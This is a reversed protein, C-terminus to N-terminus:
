PLRCAKTIFPDTKRLTARAKQVRLLTPAACVSVSFANTTLELQDVHPVRIYDHNIFCHLPTATSPLSILPPESESFELGKQITDQLIIRKNETDLLRNRNEKIPVDSPRLETM